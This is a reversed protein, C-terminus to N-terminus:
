LPPRGTAVEVTFRVRWVARFPMGASIRGTCPILRHFITCGAAATRESAHVIDAARVTMEDGLPSGRFHFAEFVVEPPGCNHA